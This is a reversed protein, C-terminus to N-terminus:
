CGSLRLMLHITWSHDLSYSALTKYDDMQRARFILRQQDTPINSERQIALKIFWVYDNLDTSIVLTSGTLPEITLTAAQLPALNANTWTFSLMPNLPKTRSSEYGGGCRAHQKKLDM